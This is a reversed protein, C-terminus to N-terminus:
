IIFCLCTQYLRSFSSFSFGKKQHKNTWESEKKMRFTTLEKMNSGTHTTNFEANSLMQLRKILLKHFLSALNLVLFLSLKWQFHKLNIDLSSTEVFM